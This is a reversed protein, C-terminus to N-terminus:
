SRVIKGNKIREKSKIHNRKVETRDLKIEFSVAEYFWQILKHSFILRTPIIKLVNASIFWSVLLWCMFIYNSKANGRLWKLEGCIGWKRQYSIEDYIWKRGRLYNTNEWLLILPWINVSLADAFLRKTLTM